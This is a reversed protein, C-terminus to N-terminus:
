LLLKAVARLLRESEFPKVVFDRAGARLAARVESQYGSATVMGVRAQGDIEMILELAALGDLEPMTIDLLVADPRRLKFIEVAERGNEAEFVQHGHDALMRSCRVRVLRMDDAILITAM